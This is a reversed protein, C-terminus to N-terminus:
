QLAAALAGAPVGGVELGEYSLAGSGGNMRDGQSESPDARAEDPRGVKSATGHGGRPQPRNKRNRYTGCGSRRRQWRAPVGKGAASRSRWRSVERSVRSTRILLIMPISRPVVLLQTATISPLFARTM